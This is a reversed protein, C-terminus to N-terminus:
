QTIDALAGRWSHAILKLVLSHGIIIGDRSIYYTNRTPKIRVIERGRYRLGVGVIEGSGAEARM